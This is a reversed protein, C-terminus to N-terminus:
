NKHFLYPEFKDLIFDPENIFPSILLPSSVM